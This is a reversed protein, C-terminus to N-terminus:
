KPLDPYNKIRSYFEESYTDEKPPEPIERKWYFVSETAGTIMNLANTFEITVLEWGKQGEQNLHDDVLWDTRYFTRKYEFKKM